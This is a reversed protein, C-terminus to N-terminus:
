RTFIEFLDTSPLGKKEEEQSYGYFTEMRVRDNFHPTSCEILITDEIAEEQHVCGPQFRISSGSKIIMEKLFGDGKDYKILLKGSVVYVSEDKLQHRQLGGKSGKKIFLEKVSYNSSSIFLLTEKGWDREGVSENLPQTPPISLHINKRSLINTITELVESIARHGGASQTRAKIYPNIKKNCDAVGIPYGVIKCLEIDNIDNCIFICNQLSIKKQKSWEVAISVKNNIEHFIQLKLKKCRQRVCENEESSIVVIPFTPFENRFKSLALSDYKSTKILEIGNTDTYVNNDTFVGDFDLILGEPKIMNKHNM